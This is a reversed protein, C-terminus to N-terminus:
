EFDTPRISDLARQAFRQPRVGRVWKAFVFTSSGKPKFRLAKARVPGHARTGFEQYKAHKAAAGVARAPKMPSSGPVAAQTVSNILEGTNVLGAARINNTYRTQAADAAKKVAGESASGVYVRM